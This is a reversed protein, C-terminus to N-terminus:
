MTGTIVCAFDALTSDVTVPSVIAIIDGAVLTIEPTSITGTTSGSSFTVTGVVSGNKTVKFVTSLTASIGSKMYSGNMNAPITVNRPVIVKVLTEGSLPKGNVFQAIDFPLSTPAGGGTGSTSAVGIKEWAGKANKKYQVGDDKEVTTNTPANVVDSAVSVVNNNKSADGVYSTFKFKSLVGM